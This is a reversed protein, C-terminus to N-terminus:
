RKLLELLRQPTVPLETVAGPIGIADDIASAIAAGVATVGAEGAGKLGLANLPSPADETVLVDVHSVECATPMLYDAFTVSLPQGEAGYRFEEYLAGGLGQAYGGAIQGEIMMPNVARGIDYAVLFREVTVGGTERDVRVQAVHVGYPYTMHDTRHWGECSLVGNGRQRVVDGIAISPGSENGRWVVVGDVIDLVSVPAQLLEAAIDLIINRMNLAADYTASGTMVTARSAHAGVGDAIRDTQGHVVTVRRYDVGLGDACIQAMVTEFGQGLSAGGTVLEMDGSADVSIHVGDKPGLGTKEVFCALGLGVAEGAARRVGCEKQLADWGIEALAKDLLLPYDGSDLVVDTGLASLGRAFPMAEAPILNRRRLEIRDLGLKAAVADMLRERVFTGEYRGPARYTAAPTKNVLRFHATSRFAPMHYPGSLMGSTLDPVRAGHTRVYAGQAHFFEDQMGLVRGEADVAARLIHRQERSHNAAILHERRDEIWKVPRGFRLAAAAVLVDEPYLEGRIGFGGGVHGEKLHVSEPARGLVRALNDRTRHPVKAAGYLELVDRASDYRAIAGRTELPVGSHRGISLDLEIVHAAAAFAADLDGYANEITIPETSLGPAFEGPTASADMLPAIEAIEVAVLTAADEAVYPDEAFVAAVPDGVYRVRDRALAYQRYPKLVEAAPDRFDIPGLNAIDGATWAAVVGKLALAADADITVIRGHAIQSRVIRMHLQGAFTIDDAFRGQGRLLPEDELRPLPRGIVRGCREADHFRKAM